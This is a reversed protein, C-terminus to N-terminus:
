SVYRLGDLTVAGSQFQFGIEGISEAIQSMAQLDDAIPCVIGGSHLSQDAYDGILQLFVPQWRHMRMM